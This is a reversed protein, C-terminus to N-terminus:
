ATTPVTPKAEPVAPESVDVVPAPTESVPVVETATVPAEPAVEPAVAPVPPVEEKAEVKPADKASKSNKRFLSAMKPLPSTPNSKAPTEEETDSKM